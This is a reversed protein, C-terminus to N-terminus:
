CTPAATRARSSSPGGPPRAPPVARAWTLCVGYALPGRSRAGGAVLLGASQAERPSAAVTPATPPALEVADGGVDEALLDVPEGLRDLPRPDSVATRESGDLARDEAGAPVHEGGALEVALEAAVVEAAAVWFALGSAEDGV